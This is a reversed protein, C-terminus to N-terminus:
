DPHSDPPSDPAFEEGVGFDEVKGPVGPRGSAGYRRGTPADTAYPHIAYNLTRDHAEQRELRYGPEDEDAPRNVIYSLASTQRGLSRDYSVVKVYQQPFAEICAQIDNMAIESDEESVDLTPQSWMEWYPNRPHPDDTHEVQVAWGNRLAYKVQLEIEEQTLDPLFSFTGQTIKM